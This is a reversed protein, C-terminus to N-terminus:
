WLGGGLTRVPGDDAAPGASKPEVAGEAAYSEPVIRGAAVERLYEEAKKAAERRAENPKVDLRTLLDLLAIAMVPRLLGEPIEGEAPSLSCRGGSRVADRAFSAAQALVGGAVDTELDTSQSYADAEDQSLRTVLDRIDPKKWAM